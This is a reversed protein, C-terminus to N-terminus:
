KVVFTATAVTRGEVQLTVQYPGIQYGGSPNFFLWATGPRNDKEAWVEKYTALEADGWQWVHSWPTGAELNAYDFFLYIPQDGPPFTLGIQEPQGAENIHQALQLHTFPSDEAMSPQGPTPLPVVPLLPESTPTAIPSSPRATAISRVTATPIAKKDPQAQAMTITALPLPTARLTPIVTAPLRSIQWISVAGVGLTSFGLVMFLCLIVGWVWTQQWFPPAPQAQAASGGKAQSKIAVTLAPAPMINEIAVGLARVFSLGDPYRLNPQKALMREITQSLNISIGPNLLHLPPPTEYAHGHLVAPLPGTFPPKKLLMQYCLIGLAYMDSLPDPSQGYVREPAIVEPSGIAYGHQGFSSDALTQTQGFNTVVVHDNQGLYITHAALDGHVMGQQHAYDLAAAIQRMIKLLRSPSFTGDVELVTSLLRGDLLEQVIYLTEADQQVEYTRIINPHELRINKTANDQFRKVFQLDFMLPLPVVKIAVSVDDLLRRGRYTMTLGDQSLQEEIIYHTLNPKWTNTM